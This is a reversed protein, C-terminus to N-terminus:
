DVAKVDEQALLRNIDTINTQKLIKEAFAVSKKRSLKRIRDKVAPISQPAMSIEDLGMGILIPLVSPDSAMEGCMFVKIGKKKGIDVVYKIIKLVAPHLPQYLHAVKRNSRDIALMYQTLDNTGISFFDVEDALTEAMFAASPIEIMIGMEIDSRHPINAKKLAMAADQLHKRAALVEELSSIMPFMVRINGYASARLIAKLQTIFVDPRMLCFRIARLGLAPNSEENSADYSLAKDGNIDLTRITVPDPALLEAVEKYREFLEDESPYSTRSLYQFETRYLGIGEGGNDIVSVLEEVLEINGMLKMSFGDTTVAPNKCERTVNAKRIEYDRRKARYRILTADNPHVIVIGESGDVIIIDENKIIKTANGLGQISPIELTRAIISTHSAQGGKDTVFGMIKELQIQSTDAPSLDKAVLIVRKNINSINIKEAGMLNRMIRDSVQSIDAARSRLYPDPIDQFMAMIRAVVVKLAWEANIKEEEITEITKGYLMKDGSLIMHSELISIHESFDEPLESIITSLEEKAKKVATKFRLVEKRVHAAEIPYKHVVDVGEKDVLYAQGICIGPSGKIGQLIIEESCPTEGVHISNM